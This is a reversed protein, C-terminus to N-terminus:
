HECQLHDNAGGNADKWADQQIQKGWPRKESTLWVSRAGCRPCATTATEAFWKGNCVTCVQYADGTVIESDTSDHASISVRYGEMENLVEDVSSADRAGFINCFGNRLRMFLLMLLVALMALGMAAYPLLLGNLLGVRNRQEALHDDASIVIPGHMGILALGTVCVALLWQAAKGFIGSHALARLVCVFVVVGLLLWAITCIPTLTCNWMENDGNSRTEM